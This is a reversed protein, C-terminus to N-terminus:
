RAMPPIGAMSASGSVRNLSKTSCCPAHPYRTKPMANANHAVHPKGTVGSSIKLPNRKPTSRAMGNTVAAFSLPHTMPKLM